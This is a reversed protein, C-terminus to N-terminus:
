LIWSTTKWIAEIFNRSVCLYSFILFTSNPILFKKQVLAIPQQVLFEKIRVFIKLNQIKSIKFKKYIQRKFLNM